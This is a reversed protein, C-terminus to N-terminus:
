RCCRGPPPSWCAASERCTLFLTRSFTASYGPNASCGRATTPAALSLAKRAEGRADLRGYGPPLPAYASSADTAAGLGLDADRLQASSAPTSETTPYPRVRVFELERLATPPLGMAADHPLPDEWYLPRVFLPRRLALAHEWEERCYRSRMSNSYWFLQFIDAEEILETLRSQWREASRLALVDQLYQDGLARAAEAFADVIERDDHSYSPFIKRYRPASETVVPSEAGSTGATITIALSVEGLLLSGCWVRVAGRVVSGLLSLGALLRFEAQHVPEWWDFESEAPNCVLGPLDPAVRLRAGRFVVGRADGSAQRVPVNGFHARAIDEVQKGPDLPAQDPRIVLDTKHAFVLLSAWVEPSLAQPRYVTFRVDDDAAGRVSPLPPVVASLVPPPLTDAGPSFSAGFEIAPGGTFDHLWLRGTTMGVLVKEGTGDAAIVTIDTGLGRFDTESSFPPRWRLLVGDAGAGIVASGDPAVAVLHVGHSYEM